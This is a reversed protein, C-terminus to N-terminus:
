GIFCNYNFTPAKAVVLSVFYLKFGQAKGSGVVKLGQPKGWCGVVKQFLHIFVKVKLLKILYSLRQKMYIVSVTFGKFM